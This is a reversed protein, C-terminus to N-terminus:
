YQNGIYIYITTNNVSYIGINNCFVVPHIRGFIKTKGVEDMGADLIHRPIKGHTLCASFHFQGKARM